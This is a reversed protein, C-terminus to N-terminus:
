ESSISIADLFGREAIRLLGLLRLHNDDWKEASEVLSAHGYAVTGDKMCWAVFINSIKGDEAMQALETLSGTLEDKPIKNAAKAAAFDIVNTTM